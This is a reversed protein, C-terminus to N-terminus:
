ACWRVSEDQQSAPCAPIDMYFMHAAIIVAVPFSAKAEAEEEEKRKKLLEELSLPQVASTCM